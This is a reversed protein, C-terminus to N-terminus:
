RGAVDRLATLTRDALELAERVSGVGRLYISINNQAVLTFPHRRRHTAQYARLVQSAIEFAAAKDERASLDCALNLKCALSDPHNAGYSRAYRADIDAQDARLGRRADWRGCRSRSARPPACRTWSTRASSPATGSTPDGPAARGLGRLRRAERLDRALMSASHLTYPHDPGLVGPPLEADGRRPRPRPLLRGGAAPRHRPQERKVAHEPRGRRCHEAARRYTQEDLDLAERFRGLGRLDGGLSGATLLTPPHDDGLSRRSSTSSRRTWSTPRRSGARPACCTRSTSACTAPDARRRARDERQWQEELEHAM